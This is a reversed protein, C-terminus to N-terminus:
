CRYEVEVLFLGRAPAAVGANRRDRSELIKQLDQLSNKESGIKVITGVINRVMQKLFGNAELTIALLNSKEKSTSHNLGMFIQRFDVRELSARYITRVTSRVPTGVSQFSKFDHEGELFRLAEEIKKLDLFYPLHWSFRDLFVSPIPDNWILYTYKKRIADRQSHFNLPVEEIKRVVIAPGLHFNLASQIKIPKLSSSTKFNAIQAIAHVGADTRGSGIVTIKEHTIQSLIEQLRGQISVRGDQVQWGFFPTGDYQLTLKYNKLISPEM